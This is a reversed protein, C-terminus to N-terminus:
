PAPERRRAFRAIVVPGAAVLILALLFLDGGAVASWTLSRAVAAMPQGAAVAMAWEAALTLVLWLLGVTVAQAGSMAARRVFLWIAFGLLALLAIGSLPLAAARGALPVLLFERAAGNAAALGFLVLWCLAANRLLRAPM